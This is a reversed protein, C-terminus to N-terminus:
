GVSALVQQGDHSRRVHEAFQGDEVRTRARRRGRSDGLYAGDRHVTVCQAGPDLVAGLDGLLQQTHQGSTQTTGVVGQGVQDERVNGATDGLREQLERMRESVADRTALANAGAALQVAVGAVITLIWLILSQGAAM